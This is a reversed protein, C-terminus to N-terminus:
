KVKRKWKIAPELLNIREQNNRFAFERPELLWRDQFATKNLISTRIDIFADTLSVFRKQDLPRVM